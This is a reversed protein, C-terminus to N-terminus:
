CTAVRQLVVEGSLHSMLNCKFPLHKILRRTHTKKNKKKKLSHFVPSWVITKHSTGWSISVTICASVLLLLPTMNAVRELLTCKVRSWSSNNIEWLWLTNQGKKRWPKHRQKNTKGKIQHLRLDSKESVVKKKEARLIHALIFLM